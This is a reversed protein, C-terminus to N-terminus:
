KRYRRAKPALDVEKGDFTDFIHKQLQHNKGTLRSIVTRFTKQQPISLSNWAEMLGTNQEAKGNAILAVELYSRHVPTSEPCRVAKKFSVLATDWSGSYARYVGSRLHLACNDPDKKLGYHIRSLATKWEHLPYGRYPSLSSASSLGKFLFVVVVTKLMIALIFLDVDLFFNYLGHCFVACVFGVFPLAIWAPDKRYEYWYVTIGYSFGSIATYTMHGTTGLLSRYLCVWPGYLSGYTFNEVIAFGLGVTAAQAVADFPERITDFLTSLIIFVLLKAIEESPAVYFLQEIFRAPAGDIGSFQVFINIDYIFLCLFSSAIGGLFFLAIWHVKRKLHNKTDRKQLFKLWIYAAAIDIALVPLINM